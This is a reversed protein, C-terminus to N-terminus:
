RKIPPILIVGEMTSAQRQMEVRMNQRLRELQWQLAAERRRLEDLVTSAQLKEATVALGPETSHFRHPPKAPQPDQLCPVFGVSTVSSATALQLGELYGAVKKEVEMKQGDSIQSAEQRGGQSSLTLTSQEVRRARLETQLRLLMKDIRRFTIRLKDSNPCRVRVTQEGPSWDAQSAGTLSHDIVSDMWCWFLPEHLKWNLYAELIGNLTQIRELEKDLASSTMNGHHSGTVPPQCVASPRISSIVNKECKSARHTYKSSEEQVSLLSKWQLRLKGYQWQLEQLALDKKVKVEEGPGHGLLDDQGYILGQPNRPASTLPDLQHVNEALLGDLLNGSSLLWGLALLLDRSEMQEMNSPTRPDLAWPAGYGSHCLASRVFQLQMDFDQEKSDRCVCEQAFARQLLRYLLNWMDVVADKKNFKARRFTEATLRSEVNLGSLLKCLSTIVQKVKVSKEQQM